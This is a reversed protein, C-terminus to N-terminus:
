LAQIIDVLVDDVERLDEYAQKWDALDTVIDPDSAIYEAAEELRDISPHGASLWPVITAPDM